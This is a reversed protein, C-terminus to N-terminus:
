RQKLRGIHACNSWSIVAERLTDSGADCQVLVMNTSILPGPVPSFNSLVILDIKLLTATAFPRLTHVQSDGHYVQWPGGRCRGHRAACGRGHGGVSGFRHRRVFKSEESPRDQCECRQDPDPVQACLAPALLHLLSRRISILFALIACPPPPCTSTKM